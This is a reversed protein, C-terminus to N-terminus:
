GPSEGHAQFDIALASYGAQRLPRLRNIMKGRDARVGHLVVVVGAGPHGRMLWGRLLSGSRSPITVDEAGLDAPAPGVTRPSPAAVWAGSIIITAVALLIAILLNLAMSRWGADRM